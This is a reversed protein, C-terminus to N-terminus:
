ADGFAPFGPQFMMVFVDNVTFRKQYIKIIVIMIKGQDVEVGNWFLLLRFCLDFVEPEKWLFVRVSVQDEQPIKVQGLAM